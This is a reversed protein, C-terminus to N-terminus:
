LSVTAPLISFKRTVIGDDTLSKINGDNYKIGVTTSGSAGKKVSFHLTFMVGTSTDNKNANLYSFKFPTVSYGKETATNTTMLDLSKLASGEDMGTLTLLKTDYQLILDMANIGCNKNLRVTVDVKGNKVTGTLEIEGDDGKQSPTVTSGGSCAWM